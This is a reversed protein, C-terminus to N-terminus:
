PRSIRLWLAGLKLRLTSGWRLWFYGVDGLDKPSSCRPLSVLRSVPASVIPWPHIGSSVVIYNFDLSASNIVPDRSYQTSCWLTGFFLIDFEISYILHSCHCTQRRCYHYSLHVIEKGWELVKSQTSRPSWIRNPRFPWGFVPSSTVGRDEGREHAQHSLTWELMSANTKRM